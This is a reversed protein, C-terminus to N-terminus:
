GGGTLGRPETDDGGATVQETMLQGVSREHADPVQAGVGVSAAVPLELAQEILLLQEDDFVGHMLALTILDVDPQVIVSRGEVPADALHGDLDNAVAAVSRFEQRDHGAREA